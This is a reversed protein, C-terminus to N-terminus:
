GHLLGTSSTGYIGLNQSLSLYEVAVRVLRLVCMVVFISPGDLPDGAM